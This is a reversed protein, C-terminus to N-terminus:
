AGVMATQGALSPPALRFASGLRRRERKRFLVLSPNGERRVGRMQRREQNEPSHDASWPVLLESTPSGRVGWALVCGHRNGTEQCQGTRAGEHRRIGGAGGGRVIVGVLGDRRDQRDLRSELLAALVEQVPFM